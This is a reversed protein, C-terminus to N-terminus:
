TYCLLKYKLLCIGCVVSFIDFTLPPFLQCFTDTYLEFIFKCIKAMELIRDNRELDSM